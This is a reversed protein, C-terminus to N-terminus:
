DVAKVTIKKVGDKSYIVPHPEGKEMRWGRVGFHTDALVGMTTQYWGKTRARQTDLLAKESNDTADQLVIQNPM